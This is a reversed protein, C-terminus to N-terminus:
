SDMFDYDVFLIEFDAKMGDNRVYVVDEEFEGFHMMYDSGIVNEVDDLPQNQDDLLVGDKYYKLSFKSYETDNGFIDPPIVYPKDKKAKEMEDKTREVNENYAHSYSNESIIRANTEVDEETVEIPNVGTSDEPIYDYVEEQNKLYFYTAVGGSVFGIFFGILAAGKTTM